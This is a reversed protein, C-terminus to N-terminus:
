YSGGTNNKKQGGFFAKKPPENVQSFHEQRITNMQRRLFGGKSQSTELICAARELAVIFPEIMDADLLDNALDIMYRAEKVEDNWPVSSLNGLRMDRTFFGLLGWLAKKNYVPSGNEDLEGTYYFRTLKDKLDESVEPRGWVADTLMLNLDLDSSPLLRGQDGEEM